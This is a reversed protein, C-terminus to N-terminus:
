LIKSFLLRTTRELHNEHFKIAVQCEGKERNPGKKGELILKALM